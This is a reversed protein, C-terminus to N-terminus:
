HRVSTSSQMDAIRKLSELRQVELELFDNVLTQMSHVEVLKELARAQFIVPLSETLEECTQADADARELLTLMGEWTVEVTM